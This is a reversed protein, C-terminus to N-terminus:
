GGGGVGNGATTGGGTDGGLGSAVAGGGALSEGYCVEGFIQNKWFVQSPSLSSSPSESYKIAARLSM